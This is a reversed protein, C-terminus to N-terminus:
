MEIILHNEDSLVVIAVVVVVVVAAVFCCCSFSVLFCFVNFALRVLFYVETNPSAYSALVSM